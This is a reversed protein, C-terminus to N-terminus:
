LEDLGAAVDGVGVTGSEDDNETVTPGCVTDPVTTVSLFTLPDTAKISYLL